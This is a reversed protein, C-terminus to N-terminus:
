YETKGNIEIMLLKESIDEGFACALIIKSYIVNIESIVNM